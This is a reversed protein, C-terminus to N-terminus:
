DRRLKAVVGKKHVNKEAIEHNVKNDTLGSKHDITLQGNEESMESRLYIYSTRFTKKHTCPDSLTPTITDNHAYTVQEINM